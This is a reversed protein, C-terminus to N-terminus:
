PELEKTDEKAGPTYDNWVMTFIQRHVCPAANPLYEWHVSRRPGRWDESVLVPVTDLSCPASVKLEVTQVGAPIFCQSTWPDTATCHESTITIRGAPNYYFLWVEQPGVNHFTLLYVLFAILMVTITGRILSGNL